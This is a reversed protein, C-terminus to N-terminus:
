DFIEGSKDPVEQVLRGWVERRAEDVKTIRALMNLM